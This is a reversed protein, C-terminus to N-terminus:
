EEGFRERLRAEERAVWRTAGLWYFPLVLFPTTTGLLTGAGLLIPTGALYMPNRSLAYPGSRVLTSPRGEPAPTTSSRAFSSLAWAHLAVGGAVPLVGLLTWPAALWRPGPVLVHLALMAVLGSFFWGPPTTPRLPTM